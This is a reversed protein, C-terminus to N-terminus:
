NDEIAKQCLTAARRLKGCPIDNWVGDSSQIIMLACNENGNSNSPEGARWSEYNGTIPTGDFWYFNKDVDNRRLGIWARTTGQGKLFDAIFINEEASNIIPLDANMGQCEQRANRM